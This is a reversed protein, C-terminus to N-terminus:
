FITLHNWVNNRKQTELYRSFLSIKNKTVRSILDLFNDEGHNRLSVGGGRGRKTYM